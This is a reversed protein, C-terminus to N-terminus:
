AITKTMPNGKMQDPLRLYIKTNFLLHSKFLCYNRICRYMGILLARQPYNIDSSLNNIYGSKVKVYKLNARIAILPAPIENDSINKNAVSM